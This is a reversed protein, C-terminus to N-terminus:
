GIIRGEAQAAFIDAEIRAQEQERGRYLNRRVRDYFASIQARTWTRATGNGGGGLPQSAIPGRGPVALSELPVTAAPQAPLGTPGSGPPTVTTQEQKFARFFAATRRADGNRYAHDIMDYRKNGSLWDIQQLWAHFEPDANVERWDAMERDLAGEVGMKASVEASQGQATELRSLRENFASLTPHVREYSWRQTAAMLEPGYEDNDEQRQEVPPLEVAVPAPAPAPPPRQSITAILGQLNDIQQQMQQRQRTEAQLRGHVTRYRQEWSEAPEAPAPAPEAVAPPAPPQVPQPVQGLPPTEIPGPGLDLEPEAPPEHEVVTTVPHDPDAGTQRMLADAREAQRRVAAPLEPIFRSLDQPQELTESM